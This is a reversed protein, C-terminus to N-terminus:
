LSQMRLVHLYNSNELSDVDIDSDYDDKKYTIKQPSQRNKQRRKPYEDVDVEWKQDQPNSPDRWIKM